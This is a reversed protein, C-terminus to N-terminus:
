DDEGTTATRAGVVLASVVLEAGLLGAVVPAGLDAHASGGLAVLALQGGAFAIGVGVLALGVGVLAAVAVLKRLARGRETM